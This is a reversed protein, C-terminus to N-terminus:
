VEVDPGDDPDTPVVPLFDALIAEMATSGSPDFRELQHAYRREVLGTDKHGLRRAVIWTPHGAAIWVSAAFHRTSHFSWHPLGAGKLRESWLTGIEDVPPPAGDSPRRFVYGEWEPGWDRRAAAATAARDAAALLAEGADRTLGVWRRSHRKPEYVRWESTQERGISTRADLRVLQAQRVVHLRTPYSSGEDVFLENEHIAILEGARLGTTFAAVWLGYLWDDRWRTLFTRVQAPTPIEDDRVADTTVIVNESDTIPRNATIRAKQRAWKYAAGITTRAQAAQSSSLRREFRVWDTMEDVMAPTLEDIGIQALPHRKGDVGTVPAVAVLRKVVGEYARQTTASRSGSRVMRDLADLWIECLEGVTTPRSGEFTPSHAAAPLLQPHEARLWKWIAEDPTAGYHQRPKAGQSAGSRLLIFYRGDKHHHVTPVKLTPPIVVARPATLSDARTTM